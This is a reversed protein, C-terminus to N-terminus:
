ILDGALARCDPCSDLHAQLDTGTEAPEQDLWARWVGLDPCAPIVANM